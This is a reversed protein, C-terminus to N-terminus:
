IIFQFNTLILSYQFRYTNFISITLLQILLVTPGSTSNYMKTRSNRRDVYSIKGKQLWKKTQQLLITSYINLAINTESNETNKYKISDKKKKITPKKNKYIM